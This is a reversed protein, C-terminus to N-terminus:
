VQTFHEEEIGRWHVGEPLRLFSALTPHVQRVLEVMLLALRRISFHANSQSRLECLHYVERLNLTMLVRRNFANPVVYAAVQPNWGALENFTGFAVDMAERYSSEFGAETILKPVTYGLEATLRQPTQTMMRHRKLELFAGQDLLAEFTYTAHELERLPIDFQELHGLITEALARREGEDLSKVHKLASDFSCTGQAYLAAAMVRLEAEPDHDILRLPESSEDLGLKTAHDTLNERTAMLYPVRNAYKVLTPVEGQASEKVAQGIEQVEVLPHSLMKRIAHELARANVTMGVNALAAAPLLFRCADVYKSRTRNDWATEREGDRKPFRKRVLERVPELSDHYAQFLHDCCKRYISEHPGDVMERPLHYGGLDWMQYRTSKETYSALRNSEICETALRSINELAIHLVAHEAVSAHGYGVVWKEHFKASKEDTLEDAIERFTLPSRSTKAFTVAITEPSLQRPSLLYIQRQFQESM